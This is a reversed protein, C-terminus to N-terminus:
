AALTHSVAALRERPLKVYRLYASSQWRGLAQILSDEIGRAAATTAAGIRFSHGSYPAPDIGSAQLALRLEKVLRPRSLPSGDACCFLPGSKDGRAELYRMMAEVPCLDGRVRALFIHIGQRFPDTKSQKITVRMTSPEARSDVAIDRYTLHAGPDFEGLSPVTFEAARLFGFFAVCCAAWLMLSDPRRSDPDWAGRLSRLITPTIPLRPKVARAQTAQARKIGKITLELKPFSLSFNPDPMSQAVQAYRLGSLYAKVTSHKLGQHALQAVFACLVEEVLPFPNAVNCQHCFQMYRRTATDYSSRTSQAIGQKCYFQVLPALTSIDM